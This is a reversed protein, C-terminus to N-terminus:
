VRRSSKRRQVLFVISGVVTTMLLLSKPEPAPDLEYEQRSNSSTALIRESDDIGLFANFSFINYTNPVFSLGLPSQGNNLQGCCYALFEGGAGGTPIHGVLFGNDNIDNLFLRDDTCCILTGQDFVFATVILINLDRVQGIAIGSSNVDTVSWTYTGTSGGPFGLSGFFSQFLANNLGPVPQPNIVYQVNCAPQGAGNCPTV